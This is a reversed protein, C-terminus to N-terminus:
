HICDICVHPNPYFLVIKVLDRSNVEISWDDIRAFVIGKLQLDCLWLERELASIAYGLPKLSNDIVADLEIIM